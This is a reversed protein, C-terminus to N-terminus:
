RGPSPAMQATDTELDPNDERGAAIAAQEQPGASPVADLAKALMKAYFRYMDEFEEEYCHARRDRRYGFRFSVKPHIRARARYTDESFEGMSDYYAGGVKVVAHYWMNLGGRSPSATWIQCAVGRQMLSDYLAAAFAGCTDEQADRRTRGLKSAMIAASLAASPLIRRPTPVNTLLHDGLAKSM